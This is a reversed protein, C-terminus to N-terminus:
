QNFSYSAVQREYDALASLFRFTLINVKLQSNTLQNRADLMEIFSNIGEKYGRDILKFYNQAAEQQRLASRYNTYTNVANNRSVFAGLELQKRTQDKKVDLIQRDTEARQIKYLNQRGSFLPIQVQLGALYFVSRDNVKFRYGQSGLDLFSNLIPTRFSKNLKLVQENITGALELSKLEERGAVANSDPSALENILAPSIDFDSVTIEETLPRNLLFNFYAKANMEESIATQVQAEVASEESEARSVYAYLGKGERLLLRNLRVNEKVVELANRYIRVSSAAMLYSYYATKIEKVLERKYMDIENQQLTVESVKIDRNIRIAPNLLPLTTRIRADYFNDPTLQESVNAIKPFNNSSTLQNLTTYVPNLLDGVPIDISRGGGALTYQGEFWTKPLFLSKAEKLALLSNELSGKKETLVLNNELGQKLYDDLVPQSFLDRTILFFLFFVSQRIIISRM